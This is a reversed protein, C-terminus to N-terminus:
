IHEERRLLPTSTLIAVLPIIFVDTTDFTVTTDMTMKAVIDDSTM